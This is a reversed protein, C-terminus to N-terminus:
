GYEDRTGMDVRVTYDGEDVQRMAQIIRNFPRWFARAIASYAFALVLTILSALYVMTMRLGYLKQEIRAKTFVFEADALHTSGLRIIFSRVVNPAGDPEKRLDVRLEDDPQWLRVALVERDEFVLRAHDRVRKWDENGLPQLVVASLLNETALTKHFLRDEEGARAGNLMHLSCLVIVLIAAGATYLFFKNQIQM